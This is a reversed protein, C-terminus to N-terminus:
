IRDDGYCDRIINVESIAYKDECRYHSNGCNGQIDTRFGM